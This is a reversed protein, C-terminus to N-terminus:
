VRAPVGRPLVPTSPSVPPPGPASPPLPTTAALFRLARNWSAHGEGFTESLGQTRIALIEKSEKVALVIAALDSLAREFAVPDARRDLAVELGEGGGGEWEQVVLKRRRASARWHVSRLGEGDRKDRLSSPQLDGAQGPGMLDAIWDNASQAGASGSDVVRETPAPHVVIEKPGPVPRRRRLLGFPYTSSVFVGDVAHIGRRLSPIEVVIEVPNEAPNERTRGVLAVGGRSSQPRKAGPARALLLEVDVAFRIREGPIVKCSVRSPAEAAVAAVDEFRVELGRTSRWSWVLALAWQITLFALLLFFLNVYPSAFYAGLVAIYFAIAKLGFATPRM